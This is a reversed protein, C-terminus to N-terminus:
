TGESEKTVGYVGVLSRQEHSKGPLFVSTNQWKRRWLIKRVWPDLGRSKLRSFQYAFEEGPFGRLLSVFLLFSGWPLILDGGSTDNFTGLHGWSKGITFPPSSRPSFFFFPHFFALFPPFLFLTPLLFASPGQAKRSNRGRQWKCVKKVEKKHPNQNM